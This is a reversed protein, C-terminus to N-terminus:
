IIDSHTISQLHKDLEIWQKETNEWTFKNNVYEIQKEPNFKDKRSIKIAKKMEKTFFKIVKEQEMPIKYYEYPSNKMLTAFGNTTEPLAGVDSSIIQLGGSMCEMAMICATEQFTCPYALINSNLINEFYTDKDTFGVFNIRKDRTTYYKDMCEQCSCGHVVMSIDPDKINVFAEILTNFGRTFQGAYFFQVNKRKEKKRYNLPAFANNLIFVKSRDLNFNEVLDNKHFESQVIYAVTNERVQEDWFYISIDDPMDYAPVHCWIINKNIKSFELDNQGPLLVLNYKIINKLKPFIRKTVGEVMFSTGRIDTELPTFSGIM